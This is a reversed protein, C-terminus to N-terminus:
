LSLELNVGLKHRTYNLSEDTSERSSRAASVGLSLWRRMQVDFQFIYQLVDDERDNSSGVFDEVASVLSLTTSYRDSWGHNWRGLWRREDIFDGDSYTEKVNQSAQLTLASYSRPLWNLDVSWHNGSFDDRDSVNVFQKSVRGIKVTAKTKAFGQWSMGTFYNQQDSDRTTALLNQYEFSQLGAGVLFDTKDSINWFFEARASVDDYERFITLEENNSFTLSGMGVSAKLRGSSDQNGLMYYLNSNLRQFTNPEDLDSSTQGLGRTAGRDEHSNSLKFEAFLENKSNIALFAGLKLKHDVYNDDESESYFGAAIEQDLSLKYKHEGASLHWSPNIISVFSSVEDGEESYFLNDIYNQEFGLKPTFKFGALNLSIANEESAVATSLSSLLIAGLGFTYLIKNM